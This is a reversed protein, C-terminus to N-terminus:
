SESMVRDKLDALEQERREKMSYVPLKYMQRTLDDLNDLMEQRESESYDGEMIAQMTNASNVQWSTPIKLQGKEADNLPPPADAPLEGGAFEWGPKTNERVWTEHAAHQEWLSNEYKARHGAAKQSYYERDGMLGLKFQTDINGLLGRGLAGGLTAGLEGIPQKHRALGRSTAEYSQSASM